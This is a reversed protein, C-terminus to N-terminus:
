QPSGPGPARGLPSPTADPAPERLAPVATGRRMLRLLSVALLRLDAWITYTRIYALEELVSDERTDEHDWPGTLGPAMLLLRRRWRLDVTADLASAPIPRPGVLSLDGALVGPLAPVKGARGAALRSRVSGPAGPALLRMRVTRGGRGLVEVTRTVPRGGSLWAVGLVLALVPLLLVGAGMDLARKMLADSGRLQAPRLRVLPPLGDRAPLVESSLLDSVGAVMFVRLGPRDAAVQMVHEQAEWSIANAVVVVATARTREVAAELDLPDGLVEVPGIRSSRPSFEDLAGLLHLSLHAEAAIQTAVTQAQDDGGVILLRERLAGRRQFWALAVARGAYGLVMATVAASWAFVITRREPEGETVFHVALYTLLVWVLGRVLRGLPPTAVRPHSVDYVDAVLCWAFVLATNIVALVAVQAPPYGDSVAFVGATAVFVFAADRAMGFWRHALVRVLASSPATM